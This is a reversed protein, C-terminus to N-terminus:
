LGLSGLGLPPGAHSPGASGNSQLFAAPCAWDFPAVSRADPVAGPCNRNAPQPGGRADGNPASLAHHPVIPPNTNGTGRGCATPHFAARGARPKTPPGRQQLHSSSLSPTPPTSAAGAVSFSKRSAPWAGHPDQPHQAEAADQQGETLSLAAAPAGGMEERGSRSREQPTSGPLPASPAVSPGPAM